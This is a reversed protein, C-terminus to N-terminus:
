LGEMDAAVRRLRIVDLTKAEARSAAQKGLRREREIALVHDFDLQELGIESAHAPQLGFILHLDGDVALADM